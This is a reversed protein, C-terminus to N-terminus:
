KYALSIDPVNLSISIFVHLLYLLFDEVYIVCSINISKHLLCCLGLTPYQSQIYRYLLIKNIIQEFTSAVYITNFEASHILVDLVAM